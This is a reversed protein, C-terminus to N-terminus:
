LVAPPVAFNRANLEQLHERCRPKHWVSEKQAALRVCLLMNISSRYQGDLALLALVHRSTTRQLVKDAEARSLAKAFVLRLPQNM